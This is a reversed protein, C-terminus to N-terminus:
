QVRADMGYFIYNLRKGKATATFRLQNKLNVEITRFVSVPITNFPNRERFGFEVESIVGTEPNIRLKVGLVNNGIRQREASSLANRVIASIQNDTADLDNTFTNVGDAWFGKDVASGDKFAWTLDGTLRNAKNYLTIFAINVDAQYSYGNENFTKTTTYHNTQATTNTVFLLVSILSMTIIKTNM